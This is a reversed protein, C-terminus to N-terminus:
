EDAADSTYLLCILILKLAISDDGLSYFGWGAMMMLAYFPLGGILRALWLTSVMADGNEKYEYYYKHIAFGLGFGLLTWTCFIIAQLIALEGIEAPTMVGIYFPVLVIRAGKTLLDGLGYILSFRLFRGAGKPATKTSSTNESASDSASVSERKNESPNSM